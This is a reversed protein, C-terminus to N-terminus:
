LFIKYQFQEYYANLANLIWAFHKYFTDSHVMEVFQVCYVCVAFQVFIIHSMSKDLQSTDLSIFLAVKFYLVNATM